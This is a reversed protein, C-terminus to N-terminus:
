KPVPFDHSRLVDKYAKEAEAYVEAEYIAKEDEEDYTFEGYENEFSSAQAAMIAQAETKAQEVYKFGPVLVVHVAGKDFQECYEVVAQSYAPCSVHAPESVGHIRSAVDLWSPFIGVESEDLHPICPRLQDFSPGINAGEEGVGKLPSQHAMRAKTPFAPPSFPTMHTQFKPTTQKTYQAKAPTSPTAERKIAFVKMPNCPHVSLGPPHNCTLSPPNYNYDNHFIYLGDGGEDSNHIIYGPASNYSPETSSAHSFPRTSGRISSRFSSTSSLPTSSM